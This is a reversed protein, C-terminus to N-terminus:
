HPAKGNQAVDTKSPAGTRGERIRWVPEPNLGRELMSISTRHHRSARGTSGAMTLKRCRMRGESQPRQDHSCPKRTKQWTSYRFTCWPTSKSGRFAARADTQLGVLFTDKNQLDKQCYAIGLEV